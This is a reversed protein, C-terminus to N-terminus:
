ISQGIATMLIGAGGIGIIAAAIAGIVIGIWKVAQMMERDM